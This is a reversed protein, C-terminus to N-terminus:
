SAGKTTEIDSNTLGKMNLLEHSSKINVNFNRNNKRGGYNIEKASGTASPMVSYRKNNAGFIEHVTSTSIELPGAGMESQSGNDKPIM